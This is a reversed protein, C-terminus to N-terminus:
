INNVTAIANKRSSGLDETIRPRIRMPLCHSGEANGIPLNHSTAFAVAEGSNLSLIRAFASEQLPLKSKLYSMWDPSHFHHLCAVTVLELLEPALAKPSQTSVLLRLGDHRMLRAANVIASSLGDAKVGDMYKHAEDLCLVKGGKTPLTRFQETLVQFLGNAEEKSLLPDTLDAIILHIGQEACETLDISEELLASNAESEAIVSELLAIRQDLPGKQNSSNCVERVQELFDSFDPVVAQKQYTRLLDLFAAVYLQNDSSEIRMIRKIHDATLSRWRFLLPKVTCYDGYFTKRQKYFSPSCLIVAKDKTVAASVNKGFHKMKSKVAGGVQLLGAAECISSTNQDYHLVMSLMPANLKVVNGPKFPVLCSELVCSTTHSKGAGQVGVTVFCFPEHTNLYVQDGAYGEESPWLNGLLAGELHDDISSRSFLSLGRSSQLGNAATKPLFLLSAMTDASSPRNNGEDSLQMNEMEMSLDVEASLEANSPSSKGGVSQKFTVIGESSDTVAIKVSKEKKKIKKVKRADADPVNISMPIQDNIEKSKRSDMDRTDPILIVYEKRRYKDNFIERIEMGEIQEVLQKISDGNHAMEKGYTQKYKAKVQALPLSGGNKDIINFLESGTCKAEGSQQNGGPSSAPAKKSAGQSNTSNKKAPTSDVEKTVNNKKAPTSDVEKTVNNTLVVWEKLSKGQTEVEIELGETMKIIEKAKGDLTRHYYSEYKGRLQPLMIKGDENEVLKIIKTGIQPPETTGKMEEKRKTTGQKPTRKPDWSIRQEGKSVFGPISLLCNKLKGEYQLKNGYEKEYAPPISSIQIGERHKKVLQIVQAQVKPDLSSM